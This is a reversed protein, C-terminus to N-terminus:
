PTSNPKFDVEYYPILAMTGRVLQCHGSILSLIVDNVQEVFKITPCFM